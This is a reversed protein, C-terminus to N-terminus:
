AVPTSRLRIRRGLSAKRKIIAFAMTSLHPRSSSYLTARSSRWETLADGCIIRSVGRHIIPSSHRRLEAERRRERSRILSEVPELPTGDVIMQIEEPTGNELVYDARGVSRVHIGHKDVAQQQSVKPLSDSPKL